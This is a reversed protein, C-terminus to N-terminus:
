EIWGDEMWRGDVKGRRAEIKVGDMIMVKGDSETVTVQWDREGL